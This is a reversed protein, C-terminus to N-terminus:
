ISIHNILDGLPSYLNSSIGNDSDDIHYLGQLNLSDLTMKEAEMKYPLNQFLRKLELKIFKKFDM